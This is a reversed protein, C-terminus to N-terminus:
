WHVQFQIIYSVHIYKNIVTIKHLSYTLVHVVNLPDRDVPFKGEQSTCICVHQM